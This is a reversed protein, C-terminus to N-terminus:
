VCGVPKKVGAIKAATKAPARPFLAYLEKTQVGAGTTIRRINPAAKKESFEDRVFRLVAWHRETLELGADHALTVALEESWSSPDALFGDNDLAVGDVAAHAEASPEQAASKAVPKAPTKEAQRPARAASARPVSPSAEHAPLAKPSSLNRKAGLLPNVKKGPTATKPSSVAHVGKGVQRLGELVVALGRRVDDDSNTAHLLGLVGTPKKEAADEAASVVQEAFDLAGPQTVTKVVDLIRVVNDALQHVDDPTYGTVVRDVLHLAERGFDFYGKKEYEGMQEQAMTLAKTAIPMMSHYLDAMMRQTDVLAAVQLSLEDVKAELRALESKPTTTTM